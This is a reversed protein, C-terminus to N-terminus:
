KIKENEIYDAIRRLEKVEFPAHTKTNYLNDGLKIKLIDIM